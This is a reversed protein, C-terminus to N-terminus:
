QSFYEDTTASPLLIPTFGMQMVEEKKVFLPFLTVGGKPTEDRKLLHGSIHYPTNGKRKTNWMLEEFDKESINGMYIEDERAETHATYGLTNM